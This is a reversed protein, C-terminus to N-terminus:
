QVEIWALTEPTPADLPLQIEKRLQKTEDREFERLAALLEGKPNFSTAKDEPKAEIAVDITLLGREVDSGAKLAWEIRGPKLSWEPEADEDPKVLVPIRRVVFLGAPKGSKAVSIGDPLRDVLAPLKPDEKVLSLWKLRLEEIPAIDGEYEDKFAQFV